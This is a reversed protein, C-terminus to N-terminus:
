GPDIALIQGIKVKPRWIPWIQDEGVASQQRHVEPFILGRDKCLEEARDDVVVAFRSRAGVIGFAERGVQGINDLLEIKSRHRNNGGRHTPEEGRPISRIM